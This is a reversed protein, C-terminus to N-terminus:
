KLYDVLLELADLTNQSLAEIEHVIDAIDSNVNLAGFIIYQNGLKSFSSLPMPLNLTLLTDLLEGRKEAIVEQDKWLYSVCLIQSDDITVYIPFEERSEILIQLVPAEGDIIQTSLSLDDAINTGHLADALQDLTILTKM